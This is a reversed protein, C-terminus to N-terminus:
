DIHTVSDWLNWTFHEIQQRTPQKPFDAKQNNIQRYFKKAEANLLNNQQYHNSRNTYRRLWQAKVQFKMKINQELEEGIGNV